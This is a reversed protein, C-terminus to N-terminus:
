AAEPFNLCAFEGFRERAAADYARAADEPSAFLGLYVSRGSVRIRAMWKRCGNHWSAGKFGSTNTRRRQQNAHNQQNTALRLNYRRCNLGNHDGHDVQVGAPAGMVLRHLLIVYRRGDPGLENRKAYVTHPTVMACWKFRALGADEDDVIATYGKTLPIKIM